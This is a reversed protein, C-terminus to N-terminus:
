FPPVKDENISTNVKEQLTVEQPGDNYLWDLFPTYFRTSIEEAYQGSLMLMADEISMRPVHVDEYDIYGNAVLNDLMQFHREYVHMSDVKHTYIGVEIDLLRAILEHLFSFCPVDNTVGFIADNSRMNVSMNLLDNRIRFSISETCVVDTNGKYLHGANLMPIVAQRSDPDARLSNLVWQVGAQAGFWYQGYNSHFRGDPQQIKKWMTAHECISDDYPDAGLYWKFEEKIYQLNMNRAGFNTFRDTTYLDTQFNEIELVKQGRPSTETGEM